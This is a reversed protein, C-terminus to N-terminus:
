ILRRRNWMPMALGELTTRPGRAKCVACEIWFASGDDEKVGWVSGQIGCFPCGKPTQQDRKRGCEACLSPTPWNMPLEIKGCVECRCEGGQLVNNESGAKV